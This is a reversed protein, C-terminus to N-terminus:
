KVESDGMGEVIQSLAHDITDMHNAIKEMSREIAHRDVRGRTNLINAIHMAEQAVEDAAGWLLESNGGILNADASWPEVFRGKRWRKKRPTV